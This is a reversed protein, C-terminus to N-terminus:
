RREGGSQQHREAREYVPAQVLPGCPMLPGRKVVAVVELVAFEGGHATVLREAEREADERYWYLVSPRATRPVRWRHSALAGIPEVETINLVMWYRDM